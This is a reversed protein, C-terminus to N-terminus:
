REASQLDLSVREGNLLVSAKISSNSDLATTDNM